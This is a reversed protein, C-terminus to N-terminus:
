ALRRALLRLAFLVLGLVLLVASAIAVLSVPSPSEELQEFAMGDQGSSAPVDQAAAPTQGAAYAPGTAQSAGDPSAPSAGAVNRGTSDGTAAEPSAKTDPGLADVAASPGSTAGAAGAGAEPFGGPAPQPVAVATPAGISLQEQPMSAAGGSALGGLGPLVTTLLIGALGLTTLAAAFPRTWAGGSGALPELLRRWGRGRNLRAADDASLRFDRGAVSAPITVKSLSQTAGAIARLDDYLAACASCTAIQAEVARLSADSLDGATHAAVLFTDHRAHAGPTAAQRDRQESSTM